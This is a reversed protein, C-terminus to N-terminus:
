ELLSARLEALRAFVRDRRRTLERAQEPTYSFVGKGTKVGYEGREVHDLLSRPPAFREGYAAELTQAVQKYIELGALDGIQFPGYAFLRFGFSASVIADIAEPTAVGDELCRWAELVMATQIRNAVFGPSDKVVAVSKGADELLRVATEIAAESSEPGRVVEVAPVIDPPNFFHAGVVRGRTEPPVASAIDGISLASTNSALVCGAPAAAALEAFLAQKPALEEVITELCLDADRAAEAGSAAAEAGDVERAVAEAAEPRVDALSVAYGARTFLRAFGRGMTGTGIVAVRAAM